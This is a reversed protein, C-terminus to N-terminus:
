KLNLKAVRGMSGALFIAKGDKSRKCVHFSDKSIFQWTNGNDYSVDIGSTGCAVFIKKEVFEVSSRYGKPSTKANSWTRGGDRSFASNMEAVTDRSFDGGVVVVVKKNFAVANAGTTTQGQLLPLAHAGSEDLFRSKVGGSVMLFKATDIMRINNGSAAFCAEGSDATNREDAPLDHWTKGSDGTRALFFRNNIPDGVVIGHLEDYFDMADLFMSPTKNEYVKKWTNGGDTTRMIIAPEDVAMIVARNEDFAEIDRFDRTNYGPVPLWQFSRGGDMSKGVSGNSGSVWLVNESPASLGRLSTITGNTLYEIKQANAAVTIGFLLAVCVLQRSKM